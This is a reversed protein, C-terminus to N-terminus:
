TVTSSGRKESLFPSRVQVFMPLMDHDVFYIGEKEALSLGSNPAWTVPAFLKNMLTWPTTM